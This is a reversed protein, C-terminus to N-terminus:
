PFVDFIHLFPTGAGPIAADSVRGAIKFDLGNSSTTIAMQGDQDIAIIAQSGRVVGGELEEGDETPPTM